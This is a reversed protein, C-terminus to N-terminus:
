IMNAIRLINYAEKLETFCVCSAIPLEKEIVAEIGKLIIEQNDILLITM